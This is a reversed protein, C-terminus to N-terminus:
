ASTDVWLDGIAPSVPPTPGVTLNYPLTGDAGQLSALWASQSGSFGNDVALQYASKGTPGIPGQVLTVSGTAPVPAITGLQLDGVATPVLINFSPRTYTKGSLDGATYTLNEKVTYVWNQTLYDPDDTVPISITFAGSADLTAVFGEDPLVMFTENVDEIAQTPTFTVTGAMARNHFDVYKGVVNRVGMLPPPM